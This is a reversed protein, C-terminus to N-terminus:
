VRSQRKGVGGALSRASPSSVTTSGNRSLESLPRCGARLLEMRSTARSALPGSSGAPTAAAPGAKATREIRDTRLMPRADVLVYACYLVALLTSSATSATIMFLIIQQYRAAQLVDAGGLVWGTMVGPISILGTVALNTVAPTLAARLADATLPRVVEWRSAGFALMTEIRAREVDAKETIADVGISVGILSSGFLMGITPIFRRATYAPQMNLSYKNGFLATAVCSTLIAALVGWFLGPVRRRARWRSVEVAALLGLVGAMGMIYVPSDTSFVRDLVLGLGTLQVACRVAAVAVSRGMGLGLWGSLGINVVLLLAAVGVNSATLPEPDSGGGGLAKFMAAEM